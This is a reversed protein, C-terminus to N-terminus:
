AGRRRRGHHAAPTSRDNPELACPFRGLRRSVRRECLYRDNTGRPGCTWRALDLRERRIQTPVLAESKDVAVFGVRLYPLRVM